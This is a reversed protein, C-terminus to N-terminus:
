SLARGLYQVTLGVAQETDVGYAGIIRVQYTGDPLREHNRLLLTGNDGALVMASHPSLTQRGNGDDGPVRVVPTMTPTPMRYTNVDSLAWSDLTPQDTASMHSTDVSELLMDGPDLTNIGGDYYGVPMDRNMGNGRVFARNTKKAGDKAYGVSTLARGLQWAYSFDLNGLTPNGIRMRWQIAQKTTEDVFEPRFEIEPGQDVQSLDMLRSGPSALDYGPYERVASGAIDDPYVIPLDGGAATEITQVIRKAITHLSLNKNDAPVTSGLVATPGPGFVVDADVGAITTRAPNILVRETNLFGWLGTGTLTTVWSGASYTEAVLPGAQWIHSGQAIAYSFRQPETIGDLDAASLEATGLRVKIQWAGTDNIGGHWTPRGSMPLGSHVVRGTRTECVYIKIPDFQVLPRPALQASTLDRPSAPSM